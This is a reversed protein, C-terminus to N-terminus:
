APQTLKSSVLDISSPTMGASELYGEVGGWRRRMADLVGLIREPPCRLEALFAERREPPAEAIWREYQRALQVDTEAYDAAIGDDSVGALALLMAAIIGTRDKGAFCHFLVCGDTAAITEFIDRFAQPRNNVIVMYRDFMDTSDGIHTMNADDILVRHLYAVGADAAFPNPSSLVESESRLDLVATIGYARMAERGLPNLHGINDSRILAHSRTV